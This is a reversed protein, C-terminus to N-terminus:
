PVFSSGLAAQPVLHSYISGAGRSYRKPHFEVPVPFLLQVDRFEEWLLYTAVTQMKSCIPAVCINHSDYLIDYYQHLLKLNEKVSLTSAVEEARVKEEVIGQHIEKSMRLRWNLDERGPKGYIAVLKNPNINDIVGKSRHVEYGCYLFLCTQDKSIPYGSFCDLILNDSMESSMYRELKELALSGYKKASNIYEEETPYYEEAETYLIILKNLPKSARLVKMFLCIVYTPMGSVDLYYTSASRSGINQVAKKISTDMFHVKSISFNVVELQCHNKDSAKNIISEYKELNEKLENEYKMVIVNRLEMNISEDFVVASRSEFGAATILIDDKTIIKAITTASSKKPALKNEGTKM